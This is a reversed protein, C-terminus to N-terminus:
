IKSEILKDAMRLAALFSAPDAIGKGAIDFATGHDPSTRIFPLGLTINVGQEVGLYKVPILGQDHYMAIVADFREQGRAQMFVTDPPFPGFAAIGEAQASEIAPAIIQHEESGLLGGEGAHPNLGAVALQPARGLWRGLSSAAIRLTQLILQTNLSAIAQALPQHVTVLVVRLEDNALMMRVDCNGGLEALLETHGPYHHGALNLAHKSVPATVIASADGSLVSQTASIIAQYAQEGSSANQLGTKIPYEPLYSSVEFRLPPPLELRRALQEFLAPDGHVVCRRALANDSALGKIIIEPGIGAPDGQSIALTKDSPSNM